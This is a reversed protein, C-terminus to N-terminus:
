FWIEFLNDYILCSPPVYALPAHENTPNSPSTKKPSSYVIANLNTKREDNEGVKSWTDM